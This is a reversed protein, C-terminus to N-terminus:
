LSKNTFKPVLFIDEYIGVTPEELSYGCTGPNERVCFAPVCLDHDPSRFIELVSDAPRM